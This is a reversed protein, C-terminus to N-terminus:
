SMVSAPSNGNRRRTLRCVSLRPLGRMRRPRIQWIPITTALRRQIRRPPISTVSAAKLNEQAKLAADATDYIGAALSKIAGTQQEATLGYFATSATLADIAATTQAYELRLNAEEQTMIGLGVAIEAMAAFNGEEILRAAISNYAREYYSDQIAKNAEIIAAQAEEAAEIDGTYVRTRRV